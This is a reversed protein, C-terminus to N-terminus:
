RRTKMPNMPDQNKLQTVLLTMFSDQLDAGDSKSAAAAAQAAASGNVSNLVNSGIMSM